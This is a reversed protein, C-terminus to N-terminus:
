PILSRISLIRNTIFAEEAATLEVTAPPDDNVYGPHEEPITRGLVVTYAYEIVPLTFEIDGFIYRIYYDGESLDFLVQKLNPYGKIALGEFAVARLIGAPHGLFHVLEDTTAVDIFAMRLTYEKSIEPNRAISQTGIFGDDIIAEAMDMIEPRVDRKDFEGGKRMSGCSAFAVILVPVFIISLKM